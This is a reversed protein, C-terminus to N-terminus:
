VAEEIESAILPSPKDIAFASGAFIEPNSVQCIRGEVSNTGGAWRLLLHGDFESLNCKVHLIYACDTRKVSIVAVQFENVFSFICANFNNPKGFGSATFM